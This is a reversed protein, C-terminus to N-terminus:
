TNNLPIGQLFAYLSFWALICKSNNCYRQLFQPKWSGVGCDTDTDDQTQSVTDSTVDNCSEQGNYSIDSDPIYAPNDHSKPPDLVTM